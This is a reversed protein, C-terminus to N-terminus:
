NGLFLNRTRDTMREFGFCLREKRGLEKMRHIVTPRAITLGKAQCPVEMQCHRINFIAYHEPIHCSYLTAFLCVVVHSLM